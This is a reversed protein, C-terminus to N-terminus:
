GRVKSKVKDIASKIHHHLKDKTPIAEWQKAGFSAIGPDISSKNRHALAASTQSMVKNRKATLKPNHKAAVGKQYEQELKAGAGGNTVKTGMIKHQTQTPGQNDVHPPLVATDGKFSKGLMPRMAAKGAGVIKNTMPANHGAAHTMFHLMNFKSAPKIAQKVGVEPIDPTAERPKPEQKPDIVSESIIDKERVKRVSKILVPTGATMLKLYEIINIQKKVPTPPIPTEPRVQGQIPTVRNSPQTVDGSALSKNMMGPRGAPKAPSPNMKANIGPTPAAAGAKPQKPQAPQGAPAANPGKPQAAPPSNSKLPASGLASPKQMAPPQGTPPVKNGMQKKIRDQLSPVSAM